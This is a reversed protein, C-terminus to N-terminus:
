TIKILKISEYLTLQVELCDLSAYYDEEDNLPIKLAALIDQVALNLVDFVITRSLCTHALKLQMNLESLYDMFTDNSSVNDMTVASVKSLPIEFQKLCDVFIKCLNNGKHNGVIFFFDLIISEYTWDDNIWHARIDM